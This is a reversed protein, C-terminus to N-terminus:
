RSFNNKNDRISRFWESHTVGNEKAMTYHHTETNVYGHKYSCAKCVSHYERSFALIGRWKGCKACKKLKKVSTDNRRM